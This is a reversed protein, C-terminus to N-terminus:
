RRHGRGAYQSPTLQANILLAIPRSLKPIREETGVRRWLLPPKVAGAVYACGGICYKNGTNQTLRVRPPTREAALKGNAGPFAAEAPKEMGVLVLLRGALAMAAVVALVRVNYYTTREVKEEKLLAFGVV